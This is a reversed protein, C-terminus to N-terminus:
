FTNFIILETKTVPTTFIYDENLIYYKIFQVKHIIHHSIKVKGIM